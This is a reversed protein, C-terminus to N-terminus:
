LSARRFIQSSWLSKEFTCALPFRPASIPGFGNGNGNSYSCCVRLSLSKRTPIGLLSNRVSSTGFRRPTGAVQNCPLRLVVMAAEVRHKSELSTNKTGIVYIALDSREIQSGLRAGFRGIVSTHFFRVSWTLEFNRFPPFTRHACSTRSM